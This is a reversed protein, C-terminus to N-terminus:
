EIGKAHLFEKYKAIMKAAVPSKGEVEKWFTQAAERLKGVEEPSLTIFKVGYEKAAKISKQDYSEYEESISLQNAAISDQIKTQLEPGLEKWAKLNILV